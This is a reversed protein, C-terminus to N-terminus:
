RNSKPQHGLLKNRHFLLLYFVGITISSDAINFVPRFFMFREGGLLPVWNPLVVDIIPFYLMDVVCGQLFGAYGTFSLKSVGYFSVWENLQPNFTTGTDFLFGYFASDIINGIAGALILSLGVIIGKIENQRILRLLYWGIAIIAAFRFLSLAIKGWIGWFKLGFAMGPNETFHLIFWNGLVQVEDGIAFNTKILIKSIQDITLILLIILISLNQKSLKM